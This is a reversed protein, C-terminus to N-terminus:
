DHTASHDGRDDTASEVDGKVGAYDLDGSGDDEVKLNGGVDLIEIDGSGDDLITM